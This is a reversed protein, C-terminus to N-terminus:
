DPFAEIVSVTSETPIVQSLRFGAKALLERYGEETREQGGTLVLMSIDLRKAPHRKGCSPLVREVILLRSGPKM